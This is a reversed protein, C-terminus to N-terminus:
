QVKLLEVDFILTEYPGIASGSGTPGYALNHPIFLEYKSGENMLQLAEQWGSIVGNVPFTVPTGRKISSDFINGDITRGEYHTEVSDAALPKKGSGQEIVRYQLGTSTEVVGQKKKNEELFAKGKELNARAKQSNATDQNEQVANKFATMIQQMESIRMSSPKGAFADKFSQTFTEVNIDFGQRKFDSGISQGLIYSVKDMDIKM